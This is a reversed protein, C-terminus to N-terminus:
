GSLPPLTHYYAEKLVIIGKASIDRVIEAEKERSVGLNGMSGDGSMTTTYVLIVQKGREAWNGLKKIIKAKCDKRRQRSDCPLLWTYLLITECRDEGFEYMLLDLKVLLIAEAHDLGQPGATAYNVLDDDAPFTRSRYDTAKSDTPFQTKTAIDQYDRHESLLLVAFEYEAEKRQAQFTEIVGQMFDHFKKPFKVPEVQRSESTSLASETYHECSSSRKQELQTSCKVLVILCALAITAIVFVVEVIM